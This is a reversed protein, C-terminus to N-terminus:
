GVLEPERAPIETTDADSEPDVDSDADAAMRARRLVRHRLAFAAFASLILVGFVAPMGLGGPLNDFAMAQVDSVTTVPSGEDVGTLTRLPSGQPALLMSADFTGFGLAPATAALGGYAGGAGGAPSLLNADPAIGQAQATRQAALAAERQAAEQQARQDALRQEAARRDADRQQQQQQAARQDAERQAAADREAQEAAAQQAAEERAQEAAAAEQRAQEAAEELAAQYSALTQLGASKLEDSTALVGGVVCDLTSGVFEM